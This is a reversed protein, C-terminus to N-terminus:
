APAQGPLLTNQSTGAARGHRAMSSPQVSNFPLSQSAPYCWQSCMWLGRAATPTHGLVGGRQMAKSKDKRASYLYSVEAAHIGLVPRELRVHHLGM